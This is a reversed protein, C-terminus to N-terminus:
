SCIFNRPLGNKIKNGLLKTTTFFINDFRLFFYQSSNKKLSLDNELLLDKGQLYEKLQSENLDIISKKPIFGSQILFISGEHTFQFKDKHRKCFLIGGRNITIKQAIHEFKEPRIWVEQGRQFLTDKKIYDTINSKQFITELQLNIWALTGKSIQVFPSNRRTQIFNGPATLSTKKIKAVFFGETDYTHPWVRLTGPLYSSEANKITDLIILEANNPFTDLLFQVVEENEEPSLTCTSYVMEGGDKLAMFAHTILTKQLNSTAKVKKENWNDLAHHDKRITGEGSCPADILIKDFFNPFYEAFARGDKQTILTNSIGLREINSQLAKIRSIEPENAVIIGQNNMRAAIQTTKSGPAAAFDLLTDEPKPALIETPIMSSAEQIYFYGLFHLFSKGLPMTHKEREIWFGEKCWPIPKLEWEEEKAKQLFDKLSIKLTNV